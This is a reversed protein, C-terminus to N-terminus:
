CFSFILLYGFNSTEIEFFLSKTVCHLKWFTQFISRKITLDELVGSGTTKVIHVKIGFGKFGRIYTNFKEKMFLRFIWFHAVLRSLSSSAVKRYITWCAIAIKDSQNEEKPTCVFMLPGM